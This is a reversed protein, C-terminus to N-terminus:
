FPCGYMEFNSDAGCDYLCIGEWVGLGLNKLTEDEIVVDGTVAYDIKCAAEILNKADERSTIGAVTQYDQTKCFRARINLKQSFSKAGFGTTQEFTFKMEINGFGYIDLDALEPPIAEIDTLKLNTGALASSQNVELIPNMQTPYLKLNTLKKSGTSFNLNLLNAECSERNGNLIKSIRKMVDNVQLDTEGAKQTDQTNKNAKLFYIGLAGLVAFGILVQIMVDGCQNRILQGNKNASMAVNYGM